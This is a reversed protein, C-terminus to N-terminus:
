EPNLVICFNLTAHFPLLMVDVVIKNNCPLHAGSCSRFEIVVFYMYNQTAYLYGDGSAYFTSHINTIFELNWQAINILSLSVSFFVFSYVTSYFCCSCGSLMPIINYYKYVWCTNETECKNNKTSPRRIVNTHINAVNTHLAFLLIDVNCLSIIHVFVCEFMETHIVVSLTQNIHVRTTQM